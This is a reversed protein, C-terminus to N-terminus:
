QVPEDLLDAFPLPMVAIGEEVLEIADARTAVGRISRQPAEDYHIARAEDAFREGVDETSAAIQRALALVAAQLQPDKALLAPQAPARVPVPAEVAGFNLRPASPTKAIHRSACVPCEILGRDSQLDYDAASAFWGEFRHGRDCCLNFVKLSM